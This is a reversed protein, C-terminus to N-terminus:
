QKRFPLRDFDVNGGTLVVGIRKYPELLAHHRFIAALCSASATEVTQQFIKSQFLNSKLRYFFNAGEPAVV